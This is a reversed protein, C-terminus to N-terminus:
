VRLCVHGYVDVRWWCTVCVEMCVNVIVTCVCWWVNEPVKHVEGGNAKSYRYIHAM